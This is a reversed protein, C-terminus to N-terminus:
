VSTEKNEIRAIYDLVRQPFIITEEIIVWIHSFLRVITLNRILPLKSIGLTRSRGRTILQISNGARRQKEAEALVETTDILRDNSPLVFLARKDNLLAPDTFINIEKWIDSLEKHTQPWVKHGYITRAVTVINGGTIMIATDFHKSRRFINLSLLSGLSIGILLINETRKKAENEVFAVVEDVMQPLLNPDGAALIKKPFDLATVNYGARNLTSILRKTQWIAGGFGCLLIVEKANSHKSAFRKTNQILSM